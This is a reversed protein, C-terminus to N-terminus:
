NPSVTRVKSDVEGSELNIKWKSVRNFDIFEDSNFHLLKGKTFYLMKFQGLYKWSIIFRGKPDSYIYIGKELNGQSTSLDAVDSHKLNKVFKAPIELATVVPDSDISFSLEHASSCITLFILIIFLKLM